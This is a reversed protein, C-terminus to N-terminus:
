GGEDLRLADAIESALAGRSVGRAREVAEGARGHAHLASAVREELDAEGREALRAAIAGALVDGSGGVALAATAYPVVRARGDHALVTGPGKLVCWAGYRDACARAAAWRDDNVEAASPFGLLRAMELPHPTLVWTRGAPAARPRLALLTLADADVVLPATCADLVADVLAVADADRGLGPGLVVADARDLARLAGDVLSGGLDLLMTEALMGEGRASPGAISVLGAGLRHAARAALYAAGPSGARGGLVVVHGGHGKHSFRDRPAEIPAASDLFSSADAPASIPVGLDAVVLDGAHAMGAGTCLGPKRAAFTVTLDAAFACGLIRGTDADIGSPIDLAVRFAGTVANAATIWAAAGGTIARTLGTGFCGDVIVDCGALAAAAATADDGAETLALGAAGAADRMTAADGAFRAPDALCWVRVEASPCRTRLHRAVVLADGGNNGPGALVAVRRPAPRRRLLADAAGRGANEMLLAGAIGRAVLAADLARVQERSWLAELTM